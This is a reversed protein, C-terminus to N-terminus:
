ITHKNNVRFPYIEAVIVTFRLYTTKTPWEGRIIKAIVVSLKM